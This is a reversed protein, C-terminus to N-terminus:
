EMGEGNSNNNGMLKNLLVVVGIMFLSIAATFLYSFGAYAYVNMAEFGREFSKKGPTDVTPKRIVLNHYFFYLFLIMEMEREGSQLQWDPFNIGFVRVSM